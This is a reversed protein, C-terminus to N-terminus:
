QLGSLSIARFNLFGFNVFVYNLLYFHVLWYDIPYGFNKIVMECRRPMSEILKNLYQYGITYWLAQRAARSCRSHRSRRPLAPAQNQGVCERYHEPRAVSGALGNQQDRKACFRWPPALRTLRATIRSSFQATLCPTPWTHCCISSSSALTRKHMSKVMSRCWRVWVTARCSAGCCSEAVVRFFGSKWGWFM